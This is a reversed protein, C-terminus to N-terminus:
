ACAGHGMNSMVTAVVTDHALKGENKLDIACITMVQDGNLIAGNEDVAILRDRRGGTLRLPWCRSGNGEGADRAKRILPAATKTLIPEMRCTTVPM